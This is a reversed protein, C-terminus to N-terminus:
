SKKRRWISAMDELRVNKDDLAVPDIYVEYGDEILYDATQEQLGPIDTGINTVFKFGQTAAEERSKPQGTESAIAGPAPDPTPAPTTTPTKPDM